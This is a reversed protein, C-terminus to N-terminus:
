TSIPLKPSLDPMEPECVSVNTGLFASQSPLRGNNAPRSMVTAMGVNPYQDRYVLAARWDVIAKGTKPSLALYNRRSYQRRFQSARFGPTTKWVLFEHNRPWRPV